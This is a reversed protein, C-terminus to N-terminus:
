LAQVSNVDVASNAMLCFRGWLADLAFHAVGSQVDAHGAVLLVVGDLDRVANGVADLLHAVLKLSMRHM